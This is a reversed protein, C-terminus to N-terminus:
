KRTKRKRTKRKRTKRKRTKRTKRKRTKRTKRKRTKSRKRTGGQLPRSLDTSIIFNYMEPASLRKHLYVYKKTNPDYGLMLAKHKDAYLVPITGNENRPKYQQVVFIPKFNEIMQFLIKNTIQLGAPLFLTAPLTAM